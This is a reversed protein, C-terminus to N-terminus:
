KRAIRLTLDFPRLTWAWKSRGLLHRSGLPQSLPRRQSAAKNLGLPHTKHVDSMISYTGKFTQLLIPTHSESSKSKPLYPTQCLPNPEQKLLSLNKSNSPDFTTIRLPNPKYQAM